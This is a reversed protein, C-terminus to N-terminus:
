KGGAEEGSPFAIRLGEKHATEINGEVRGKFEEAFITVYTIVGSPSPQWAKHDGDRFTPEILGLRDLNKISHRIALIDAFTPESSSIEKALSGVNFGPHSAIAELVKRNNGNEVERMVYSPVLRSELAALAASLGASAGWLYDASDPNISTPDLGATLRAVSLGAEEYKERQEAVSYAQVYSVRAGAVRIEGDINRSVEASMFRIKAGFNVLTM